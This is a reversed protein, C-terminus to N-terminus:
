KSGSAALAQPAPYTSLLREVTKRDGDIRVDAAGLAEALRRGDFLLAELTGPDTEIAADPAEAEGREVEIRGDGVEVRFRDDALRLDYTASLGRAAEPDFRWKLALILSDVGHAAGREAPVRRGWRGLAMVIPELDRGWDTLEYVRARTPPGLRRRRVVSGEELERLRQSLVSPRANPLGARLDTFRKPGLLLERVVLLAWREGVLDLARAFACREGYTRM